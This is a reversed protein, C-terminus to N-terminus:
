GRSKLSRDRRQKAAANAERVYQAFDAARDALTMFANAYYSVDESTYQYKAAGDLKWKHRNLNSPGLYHGHEGLNFVRGHAIENRRAGFKSVKAVFEALDANLEPSADTSPIAADLMETRTSSTKVTQYVRFAARNDSALLADFIEALGSELTEWATLAYGVAQFITEAAQDGKDAKRRVDWPNSM